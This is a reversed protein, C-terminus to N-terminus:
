VRVRQARVQHIFNAVAHDQVVVRHRARDVTEVHDLLEPQRPEPKQTLTAEAVHVDIVLQGRPILLPQEVRRDSSVPRM